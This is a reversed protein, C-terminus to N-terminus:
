PPPATSDRVILEPTLLLTRRKSGNGENMRRLLLEASDAGVEYAPQAVVTLQPRTLTAWDVDDFGVVSLEAPIEVGAENFAIMAGLTMLNNAVFVATPAPDSALLRQALDYGSEQKFNGFHVLRDDVAIGAEELARTYGKLREQGTTVSTPGAITAIREHGLGILYTVADHAGRFNDVRVVDARLGPVERDILVIPTDGLARYVDPHSDDTPSAIVGEIRKNHLLELYQQEREPQEDSNCLIVSHKAALAVDEVGRVVATFFPNAFDSIVVGITLTSLGKLARAMPNPRFDHQRLADEVRVRLDESVPRTGNLVRSVTAPSTNAAAAITRITVRQRGDGRSTTSTM